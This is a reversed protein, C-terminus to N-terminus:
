LDVLPIGLLVFLQKAFIILMNAEDSIQKGFKSPGRIQDAISYPFMKETTKAQFLSYKEHLAIHDAKIHAGFPITGFVLGPLRAL